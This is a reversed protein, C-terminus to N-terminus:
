SRSLPRENVYDLKFDVSVTFKQWKGLEERGQTLVLCIM